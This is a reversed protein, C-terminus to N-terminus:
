LPERRENRVGSLNYIKNMVFSVWIESYISKIFCVVKVGNSILVWDIKFEIWSDKWNVFNYWFKIGILKTLISSRLTNNNTCPENM